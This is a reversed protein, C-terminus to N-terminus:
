EDGTEAKKMVDSARKAAANQQQILVNFMKMIGQVFMKVDQPSAVIGGTSLFKTWVGAPDLSKLAETQKMADAAQQQQQQQTQEYQPPSPKKQSPDTPITM